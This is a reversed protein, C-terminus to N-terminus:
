APPRRRKGVTKQDLEVLVRRVKSVSPPKVRLERAQKRLLRDVRALERGGRRLRCEWVTVVSWGARRLAREVKKDRARNIKFKNPWFDPGKESSEPTKALKCDKHHHWYCGHVQVVTRYKPLIIDPTYPLGRSSWGFRYGMRHLISRVKLELLTRRNPIRRM